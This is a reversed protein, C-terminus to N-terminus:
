LHGFQYRFGLLNLGVRKAKSVLDDIIESRVAFIAVDYSAEDISPSKHYGLSCRM